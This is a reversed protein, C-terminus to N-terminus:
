SQFMLVISLKMTRYFYSEQIDWVRVETEKECVKSKKNKFNAALANKRM